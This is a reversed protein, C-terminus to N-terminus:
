QEIELEIAIDDMLCNGDCESDDYHVTQSLLNLVFVSREQKKLLDYAARLLVRERSVKQDSSQSGSM